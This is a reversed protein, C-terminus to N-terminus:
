DGAKAEHSQQLRAKNLNQRASALDPEMSLALEFLAIAHTFDCRSALIVGLNNRYSADHPALRLLEDYQQQAEQLRDTQLFVGALKERLSLSKPNRSLLNQYCDAAELYRHKAEFQAAQFELVKHHDPSRQVLAEILSSNNQWVEAHRQALVAYTMLVALAASAVLLPRARRKLLETLGAVLLVSWVIAGIVSYRDSPYHPHETLGLVPILLALYCLWGASFLPFQRCKWIAAATISLVGIASLIFQWGLPNFSLLTLYFPSLDLPLWQKWAYYCWIYFAQMIRNLLPFEQLTAAEQWIGGGRMRGYVTLGILIAAILFFPNKELGCKCMRRLLGESSNRCLWFVDFVVLVLPFALGIPYSLASLLFAGLSAWYWLARKTGAAPDTWQLYCLFSILLFLLALGYPLGTIWAVPEARLPHIAWFLAGCACLLLQAADRASFLRCLLQFLLLTNLCHILLNALHFAQPALGAWDSIVAWALWSLPKYRLATHTDTFMWRLNEATIQQVHTNHVVNIDDDWSLFQGSLSNWFVASPLLALLLLLLLRLREPRM